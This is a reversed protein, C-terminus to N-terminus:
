VISVGKLMDSEYHNYQQITIVLNPTTEYRLKLHVYIDSWSRKVKNILNILQNYCYIAYFFTLTICIVIIYILNIIVYIKIQLLILHPPSPTITSLYVQM